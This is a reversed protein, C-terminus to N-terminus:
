SHISPSWPCSQATTLWLPLYEHWLYHPLHTTFAEHAVLCVCLPMFLDTSKLVLLPGKLGKLASQLNGHLNSLVATDHTVVEAYKPITLCQAVVDM